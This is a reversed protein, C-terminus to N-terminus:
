VCLAFLHGSDLRSLLVDSSFRRITFGPTWWLSDHAAMNLADQMFLILRKDAFHQTPM